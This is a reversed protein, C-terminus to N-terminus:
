RAEGPLASSRELGVRWRDRTAEFRRHYPGEITSPAL